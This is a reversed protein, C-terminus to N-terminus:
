HVFTPSIMRSVSLLLTTIKIACNWHGRWLNNPRSFCRLRCTWILTAKLMVPELWITLVFERGGRTILLGTCAFFRVTDKDNQRKYSAISVVSKSVRQVVEKGLQDWIFQSIPKKVDFPYGEWAHLEGFREEFTCVIRGNLECMLPPPLPYGWSKLSNSSLKFGAPVVCEVDKPLSYGRFINTKSSIQFYQLREYLSETPLFAFGDASLTTIVGAFHGNGDGDLLMVPGGLGAETIDCRCSMIGDRFVVDSCESRMLTGDFAHGAAVLTRADTDQLLDVPVSTDVHYVYSTNFATIVAINATRDFLGLFGYIIDSDPVRVRVSFNDDRKRKSEFELALNVTTVFVSHCGQIM